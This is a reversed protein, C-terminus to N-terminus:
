YSSVAKNVPAQIKLIRSSFYISKLEGNADNNKEFAMEWGFLKNLGTVGAEAIEYGKIPSDDTTDERLIKERFVRALFRGVIWRDEPTHNYNLTLLILRDQDVGTMNSVSINKNHLVEVPQIAEYKIKKDATEIIETKTIEQFDHADTIKNVAPAKAPHNKNTFPKKVPNNETILPNMSHEARGENRILKSYDNRGSQQENSLNAFLSIMIAISAATSLGIISLTIVKRLPTRQLLKYKNRYRVDPPTLKLKKFIDLNREKEPNNLLIDNLENLEEDSLNNEVYGACLYDFQIDSIDAPKKTIVSKGSFKIEVPNLRIDMIENLEDKLDRNDSLFTNLLEVQKDNLKGDLYDIFWIEYNSRNIEM